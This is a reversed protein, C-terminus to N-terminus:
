MSKWARLLILLFPGARLKRWFTNLLKTLNPERRYKHVLMDFCKRKSLYAFLYDINVFFPWCICDCCQRSCKPGQCTLSFRKYEERSVLSSHFIEKDQHQAERSVWFTVLTTSLPFLRETSVNPGSSGDPSLRSTTLILALMLELQGTAGVWIQPDRSVCGSLIHAVGCILITMLELFILSAFETM